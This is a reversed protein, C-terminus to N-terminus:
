TFASDQISITCDLNATGSGGAVCELATFPMTQTIGKEGDDKTSGSFKLRPFVFSTFPSNATSNATLVIILSSETENIFLDRLVNDQFLITMTGTAAVKGPFIDPDVNSGVVGGPASYNGTVDFNCSTVIGAVSGNVILVGNVSAEIGGTPTGLPTIFYQSTSTQMDLGLVPFDVTSMGTAPLKFSMGTIVCDQFQESQVIDPFNHEITYYNRTQGTTPTYIKKGGTTCTVSDGSAKPGIAVGDLTSVTMILATLAIIVMIHSNNPAGTTAWGTWGVVDGIKFGDTIYSGAARAFTGQAGSTVAATVNTLAGTNVTAQAVQRLVSEMFSQYAGVSLEGSITGAVSKVGHRMDVVQQSPVIENSTYNAKTLDITSTVRRLYQATSATNPAKTKLATQKKFAVTKNVGVAITM